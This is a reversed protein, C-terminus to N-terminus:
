EKGIQYLYKLNKTAMPNKLKEAILFCNFAEEHKELFGLPLGKIIGLRQMKVISVSQKTMVVSQRRIIVQKESHLGKIRGHMM